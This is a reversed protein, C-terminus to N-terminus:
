DGEYYAHFFPAEDLKASRDALGFVGQLWGVLQPLVQTLWGEVAVPRFASPVTGARVYLRPYDMRQNPLWYEVQLVSRSGQPSWYNLDVHCDIAATALAMEFQSTKLVYTQGQPPKPKTIAAIPMM